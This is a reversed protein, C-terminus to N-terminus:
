FLTNILVEPYQFCRVTNAGDVTSVGLCTETLSMGLSEEQGSSFYLHFPLAQYRNEHSM